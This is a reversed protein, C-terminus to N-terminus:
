KSISYSGLKKGPPTIKLPNEQVRPAGKRCRSLFESGGLALGVASWVYFRMYIGDVQLLLLMVFCGVYTAKVKISLPGATPIAFYRKILYGVILVMPVLGLIGMEGMTELFLNAFLMANQFANQDNRLIFAGPVAQLVDFPMPTVSMYARQAGAGIGTLMHTHFAEWSFIMGAYRLGSRQKVAWLLDDFNAVETVWGIATGYGPINLIVDRFIVAMLTVFAAFGLIAGLILLRRRSVLVVLLTSFLLGGIAFVSGAFVTVALVLLVDLWYRRSLNVALYLAAGLYGSLFFSMLSTEYFWLRPRGGGYTNIDIGAHYALVQLLAAVAYLRFIWFWFNQAAEFGAILVFNYFLGVVLVLMFFLWFIFQVSRVLDYTTSLSVVGALIFLVSLIFFNWDTLFPKRKQVLQFYCALLATFTVVRLSTGAVPIAIIDAGILLFTLAMFAEYPRAFANRLFSGARGSAPLMFASPVPTM